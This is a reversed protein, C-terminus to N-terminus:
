ANTAEDTERRGNRVASSLDITELATWDYDFCVIGLDSDVEGHGYFDGPLVTVCEEITLKDFLINGQLIATSLGYTGSLLPLRPITLRFTGRPPINRLEKRIIESWTCAVRINKPTKLALSVSLPGPIRDGRAAEYHVDFIATEGTKISNSPTGSADRVTIGSITVERTNRVQSVPSAVESEFESDEETEDDFLPTTASDSPPCLREFCREAEALGGQFAVVGENLVIASDFFHKPYKMRTSICVVTKGKLAEEQVAMLDSLFADNFLYIDSPALLSTFYTLRALLDPRLDILRENELGAVQFLDLVRQTTRLAERKRVGLISCLAVLQTRLGLLSRQTKSKTGVFRVPSSVRIRGETPLSLGCLLRTVM